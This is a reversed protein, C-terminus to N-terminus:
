HPDDVGPSQVPIFPDAEGIGDCQFDSLIRSAPDRDAKQLRAARKIIKDVIVVGGGFILEGPVVDPCALKVGGQNGIMKEGKVFARAFLHVMVSCRM